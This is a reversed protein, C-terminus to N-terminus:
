HVSFLFFSIHITVFGHRYKGKGRVLGEGEVEREGASLREPPFPITVSPPMANDSVPDDPDPLLVCGEGKLACRGREDPMIKGKVGVQIRDGCGKVAVREDM